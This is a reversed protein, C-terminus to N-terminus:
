KSNIFTMAQWEGETIRKDPTFVTSYANFVMDARENIIGSIVLPAGPKLANKIDNLLLLLVDATINAVAFDLKCNIGDLLNGKYIEAGDSIGNLECNSKTADIALEDIDVFICKKLGLKIAAIGLIGSGCGIDAGYKGNLDYDQMFRICLSTTEHNGTGFAMGPDLKVQIEDGSYNIWQPVIVVKNLKIPVYYKRWENEWDVSDIQSSIVELSGVNIQSNERYENLLDILPAVKFNLPFFGCVTVRENFNNTVSSQSDFLSNVSDASQNHFTNLTETLLSEDAYDWTKTRLIDRIDNVDKINVGDSGMETLCYAALDAFETTTSITVQLYKM